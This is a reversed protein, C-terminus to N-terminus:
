EVLLAIKHSSRNSTENDSIEIMTDWPSNMLYGYVEYRGPKEPASIEIQRLAAKEPPAEFWWYPKGDPFPIQQNDMMLWVLYDKAGTFGGARLALKIKENPKAHIVSPFTGFEDTNEFQQNIRIGRVPSNSVTLASRDPTDTKIFENKGSKKITYRGVIGFFDTIKDQTELDNHKAAIAIILAHLDSSLSEISFRVPISISAGKALNFNFEKVNRTESEVFFPIKVYDVLLTLSFSQDQETSNEFLISHNFENSQSLDLFLQSVEAGQADKLEISYGESIIKKEAPKSSHMVMNFALGIASGLMIYLIFKFVKRM